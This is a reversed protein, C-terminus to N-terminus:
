DGPGWLWQVHVFQLAFATSYGLGEKTAPLPSLHQALTTVASVVEHM